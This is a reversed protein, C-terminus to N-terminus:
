QVVLRQMRLEGANVIEIMYMGASLKTDFELTTQLSGEVAYQRTTLARGAADLLRIQLQGADLNTLSINVFDGNSPNPYVALEQTDVGVTKEADVLEYELEGSASTGIVQIRQTPGFNGSYGNFNPRIRVNWAGTATLNPLVGLQIFPSGANTTYELSDLSVTAGDECSAVQRFSYTYNVAGCIPETAV